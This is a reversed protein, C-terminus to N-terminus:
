AFSFVKLNVQLNTLKKFMIEGEVYLNKESGLLSNM